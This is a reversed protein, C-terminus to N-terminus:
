LAAVARHIFDTLVFLAVGGLNALMDKANEELSNHRDAIEKCLGIALAGSASIIISLGFGYIAYCLAFTTLVHLLKDKKIM